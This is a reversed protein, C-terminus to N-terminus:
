TAQPGADLASITKESETNLKTQQLPNPKPLAKGVGLPSVIQEAKDEPIATTDLMVKQMVKSSSGTALGLKKDSNSDPKKISSETVPSKEHIDTVEVDRLNNSSYGEATTSEGKIERASKAVPPKQTKRWFRDIHSGEDTECM